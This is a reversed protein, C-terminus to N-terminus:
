RVSTHRPAAARDAHRSQAVLATAGRVLGALTDLAPAADPDDAGATAWPRARLVAPVRRAIAPWNSPSAALKAMFAGLGVVYGAQQERYSQEDPRHYHLVYASPEYRITGHARVLRVFFDCDEAARTARGPGLREDFGGLRRALARRVSFNMGGGFLGPTFPFLPAGVPPDALSFQHSAFGKSWGIRTESAVEAPAELRGAFAPGTVCDVGPDRYAAAHAALWGPSVEVDDDAFVVVDGLAEALARNRGRSVGRIPEVVYRVRPDIRSFHAVVAATSDDSPDNDVVLVELAQPARVMSALARRVSAARNRTCVAVTLTPADAAGPRASPDAAVVPAPAVAQTPEDADVAARVEGPHVRGERVPVLALGIPHGDDTVLLRAYPYRDDVRLDDLQDAECVGVYVPLPVQTLLPQATM